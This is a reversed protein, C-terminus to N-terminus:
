WYYRYMCRNYRRRWYPLGTRFWRRRLWACRGNYGYYYTIAPAAYYGWYPYIRRARRRYYRRGGRRYYRRANQRRVVRRGRRVGRRYSRRASRRGVGSRRAYGRGRRARGGGRRVTVVLSREASPSATALAGAAAAKAPGSGLSALSLFAAFVAVIVTRM